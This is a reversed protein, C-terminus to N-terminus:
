GVLRMRGAVNGPRITDIDDSATLPVVNLVGVAVSISGVPERPCAQQRQSWGIGCLRSYVGLALGRFSATNTTMM